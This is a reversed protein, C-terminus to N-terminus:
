WALAPGNQFGDIEKTIVQRVYYGVTEPAFLRANPLLSMLQNSTATKGAGFAGNLWIIM